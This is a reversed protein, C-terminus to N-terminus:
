IHYIWSCYIGEHNKRRNLVCKKQCAVIAINLFTRGFPAVLSFVLLRGGVSKCPLNFVVIDSCWFRFM